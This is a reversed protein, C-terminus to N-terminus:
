VGVMHTENEADQALSAADLGDTHNLCFSLGTVLRCYLSAVEYGAQLTIGFQYQVRHTGMPDDLVSQVPDQVNGEPLIVAPNPFAVASLVKQQPM